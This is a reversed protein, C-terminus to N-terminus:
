RKIECCNPLEFFDDFEDAAMAGIQIFYSRWREDM